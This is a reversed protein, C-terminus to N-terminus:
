IKLVVVDVEQIGVGDLELRIDGQAELRHIETLEGRVYVAWTGTSLNRAKMGIRQPKREEWGEVTVVLANKTEDWTGRLFDVGDGLVIDDIWPRLMLTEHTWPNEWMQKQGNEVNLRAYGIGSNGSHPEMHIVREDVDFVRDERPYYLGGKEWTPSLHTDAYELLDDLEQTKGLESLMQMFSGWSISQYPIVRASEDARFIERSKILTQKSYPSAGEKLVLRRFASAVGGHQLQTKGDFKTLHGLTQQEYLSHVLSSNWTNM